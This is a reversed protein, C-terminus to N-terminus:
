EPPCPLPGTEARAEPCPPQGMPQAQNGRSKRCMPKADPERHSGPTAASPLLGARSSRPHEAHHGDGQSTREWGMQEGDGVSLVNAAKTVARNDARPQLGRPVHSSFGSALISRPVLLLPQRTAPVRETDAKGKCSSAPRPTPATVGELSSSWPMLQPTHNHPDKRCSGLSPYGCQQGWKLPSPLLFSLSKNQVESHPERPLQTHGFGGTGVNVTVQGEAGARKLGGRVARPAVVGDFGFDTAAGLVQCHAPGGRCIVVVIVVVVMLVIVLHVVRLAHVRLAELGEVHTSAQSLQPPPAAPWGKGDGM